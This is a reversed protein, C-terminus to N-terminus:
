RTAKKHLVRGNRILLIFGVQFLHHSIKRTIFITHIVILSDNFRHVSRHAIHNTRQIWLFDMQQPIKKIFRNKNRFSNFRWRPIHHIQGLQPQIHIPFRVPVSSFAHRFKKHKEHPFRINRSGSGYTERTLFTRNRTSFRLFHNTLHHFKDPRKKM